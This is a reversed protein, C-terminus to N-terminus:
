RADGRNETVSFIRTLTQGQDDVLTLTYRGKEPSIAMEHFVETTGIYSANLHWHIQASPSQHAAKLIIQGPTGDMMLPVFIRSNAQPYIIGMNRHPSLADSCHPHIPPLAQYFANKSKFYYEWVPPLVFWNKEHMRNPSYCSSNVRHTEEANLHIKKHYPCAPSKLGQLPIWVTDVPECHPGARHGSYRCLPVKEMDQWPPTFSPQPPFLKFVDFMLPAATAVGTLGPRGEGTANGVWVGVIVEPTIGIAWGDRYGYSTGTKWAVHSSSSFIQWYLEEDPRTVEMMAQLTFWISSPSLPPQVNKNSTKPTITKETYQLPFFVAQTFEQYNENYHTLTRGLSAYMACLDWLTTEAGGLIIPLGYHSAPKDLTTIGCKKLILNFKEPSYEKLMRVAPVNLSRSLAQSAPIAGDFTRHFNEPAYGGYQTPIDATLTHPLLLGDNLMAGYLLPKLISGPSRRSSIIDVFAAKANEDPANGVYALVKGSKVGAVLVALNNIENGKLQKHHKLALTNVKEQLQADLTSILTKGAFGEKQIRAFLHPALQPVPYPKDPLPEALALQLSIEDLHGKQQLKTLLRNRKELLLQRNRGPHILSPSNPLVALTAAEAWSLEHPKRGFYRWAAAEIGTTNGGFPALSAYMRLISKKTYRIELRTALIIERIKTSFDRNKSGESIRILQMSITSAGSEINRSKLNQIAARAISVPNFGPHYYFFRDEFTLLATIYKDPLETQAPFRWQNDTAICAGLLVGDKDYLVTSLPKQFRSAPLCFAYALLIGLGLAIFIIYLHKKQIRIRKMSIYFGM